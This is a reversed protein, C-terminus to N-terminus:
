INVRKLTLKEKCNLRKYKIGSYEDLKSLVSYILGLGEPKLFPNSFNWKKKNIIKRIVKIIEESKAAVDFVNQGHLRGNQRTGINIVHLNFTAAELLGSSSNGIMFISNKLLSFYNQKGLNDFFFHNDRTSIFSLIMKKIEQSGPDNNIGSWIYIFDSYEDLAKFLENLEKKSLTKDTTVPHYCVNVLKKNIDVKKSKLYEFIENNYNDPNIYSISPNGIVFIRKEEEGMCILRKKIDSHSVFHIHAMKTIADRILTDLCYSVDCEGGFLHVLLIGKVTAFNAIPLIEYRDGLVIMVDIYLNLKNLGKLINATIDIEDEDSNIYPNIEILNIKKYKKYDRVNRITYGIKKDFHIGTAILYINGKFKNDILYDIISSIFSFDSRATTVFVYNRM